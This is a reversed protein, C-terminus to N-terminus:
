ISRHDDSYVRLAILCDNNIWELVMASNVRDGTANLGKMCRYLENQIVSCIEMILVLQDSTIGTYFNIGMSMFARILQQDPAQGIASFATQVALEVVKRRCFNLEHLATLLHDIPDLIEDFTVLLNVTRVNAISGTSTLCPM